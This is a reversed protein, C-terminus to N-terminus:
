YAKFIDNNRDQERCYEQCNTQESCYRSYPAFIDEFRFFGDLMLEPNLPEGSLRSAKVMRQVNEHWFIRNATYIEPLNCFLRETDIETLIGNNQLNCLCNLFLQPSFFNHYTLITRSFTCTRGYFVSRMLKERCFFRFKRAGYIKAINRPM